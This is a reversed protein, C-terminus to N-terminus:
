TPGSELVRRSFELCEIEVLPRNIKHHRAGLSDVMEGKGVADDVALGGCGGEGRFCGTEAGGADEEEGGCGQVALGGDDFGDTGGEAFSVCCRVISRM